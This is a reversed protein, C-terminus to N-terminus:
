YGKFHRYDDLRVPSKPPGRERAASLRVVAVGLALVLGLSYFLLGSANEGGSAVVVVQISSSTGQSDTAKVTIVEEGKFDEPASFEITGGEIRCRVRGNGSYSFDLADGDADTFYDHLDLTRSPTTDDLHITGPNDVSRPIDNVPMVTVLVADYIEQDGDSITFIIEETGHWDLPASFRVNGDDSVHVIIDDGSATFALPSDVDSFHDHLNFADSLVGDEEFSVEGPLPTMMRPEDNVPNVTVLVTERAEMNGESAIFTVVETGYWDAPATIDVLGNAHITVDLKGDVMLYSFSMSGGDSSFHDNLNIVGIAEDDEDFSIEPISTEV